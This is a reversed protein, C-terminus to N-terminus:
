RDLAWWVEDDGYESFPDLNERVSGSFMVPDQACALVCRYTCAVLIVDDDESLIITHSMSGRGKGESYHQHMVMGYVPLSAPM